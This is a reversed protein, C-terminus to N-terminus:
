MHISDFLEPVKLPDTTLRQPSFPNSDAGATAAAEPTKEDDNSTAIEPANEVASSM